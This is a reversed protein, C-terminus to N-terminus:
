DVPISTLNLATTMTIDTESGICLFSSSDKFIFLKSNLISENQNYTKSIIYTTNSASDTYEHYNLKLGTVKNTNYTCEYMSGISTSIDTKIVNNVLTNNLLNEYTGSNKLNEDLVAQLEEESTFPMYAISSSDNSYYIFYDSGGTWEVSSEVYDSPLGTLEYFLPSNDSQVVYLSASNNEITEKMSRISDFTQTSSEYLPTIESPYSHNLSSDENIIKHENDNESSCSILLSCIILLFCQFFKKM